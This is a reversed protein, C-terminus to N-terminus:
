VAGSDQAARTLAQAMVERPQAGAVAYRGDFVFFPVGSIGYARAQELDAVVDATFADSNLM